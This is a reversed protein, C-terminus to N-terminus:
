ARPPEPTIRDAADGLLELVLQWARRRGAWHQNVHDRCFYRLNWGGADPWLEFPRQLVRWRPDPVTAAWASVETRRPDDGILAALQDWTVLGAPIRDWGRPQGPAGAWWVSRDEVRLGANPTCYAWDGSARPSRHDVRDPNRLEVVLQLAEPIADRLCLLADRRLQQRASPQQPALDAATTSRDFLALQTM